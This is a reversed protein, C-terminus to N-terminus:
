LFTTVVSNVVDCNQMLFHFYWSIIPYKSSLIPLYKALRAINQRAKRYAFIYALPAFYGVM